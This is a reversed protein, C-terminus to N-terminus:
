APRAQLIKLVEIEWAAYCEDVLRDRPIQALVRDLSLGAVADVIQLVDRFTDECLSAAADTSSEAYQALSLLAILLDACQQRAAVRCVATIRADTSLEAITQPPEYAGDRGCSPECAMTMMAAIADAGYAPPTRSAGVWCSDTEWIKLICEDFEILRRARELIAACAPEVRRAHERLADDLARLPTRERAVAGILVLQWLPACLERYLFHQMDLPTMPPEDDQDPVTM